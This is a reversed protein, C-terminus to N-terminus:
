NRNLFNDNTTLSTKLFNNISNYSILIIYKILFFIKSLYIKTAGGQNKYTTTNIKIEVGYLFYIM